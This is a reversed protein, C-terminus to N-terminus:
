SDKMKEEVEGEDVSSRKQQEMMVAIVVDFALSLDFLFHGGIESFFM